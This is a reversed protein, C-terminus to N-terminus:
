HRHNAHHHACHHAHEHLADSHLNCDRAFCEERDTELELTVHDVSLEHLADRIKTKIELSDSKSVIHMSASTVGVSVTRLHIHHVDLVGEVSMVREYVQEISIEDPAKDVFILAAEKLNKYAHIFIYVAVCLSMLADIIYLDTFRMVVAGVLVVAWGLVDELMHLSVARENVSDSGHTIYAAIFNVVVGIVAVLIMSDYKIEAPTIMRKIAAVCVGVSGLMLIVSMIVAGVLSYRGYGYTYYKDAKRKSKKEFFFSVGISLADGIDHFSDSLIAVSGVAIGGVLEFLSFFLNLLFAVLINRESKM